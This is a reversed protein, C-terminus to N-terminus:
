GYLLDTWEERTIGLRRTLYKLYKLSLFLRVLLSRLTPENNEDLTLKPMFNRVFYDSKTIEYIYRAQERDNSTFSLLDKFLKSGVKQGNKNKVTPIIACDRAM